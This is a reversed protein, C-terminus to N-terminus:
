ARKRINHYRERNKKKRERREVKKPLDSKKPIFIVDLCHFSSALLICHLFLHFLDDLLIVMFFFFILYFFNNCLIFTCFSIGRCMYFGLNKQNREKESHSIM